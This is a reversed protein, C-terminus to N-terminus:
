LHNPLRVACKPCEDIYWSRKAGCACTWQAEQESLWASAGADGIRRLSALAQGHHPVGDAAFESITSCPFDDCASCYALGRARACYRIKCPDDGDAVPESRCGPCAELEAEKAKDYRAPLSLVHAREGDDVTLKFSCAGCFLGCYALLNLHDKM